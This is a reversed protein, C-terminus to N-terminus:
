QLARLDGATDVLSPVVPVNTQASSVMVNHHLWSLALSPQGCRCQQTLALEIIHAASDQPSHGAARHACVAPPPRARAWRARNTISLLTFAEFM